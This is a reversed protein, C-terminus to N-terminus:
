ILKIERVHLTQNAKAKNLVFGFHIKGNKKYKLALRASVTNEISRVEVGKNQVRTVISLADMSDCQKTAHLM